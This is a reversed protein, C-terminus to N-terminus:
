NLALPKSAVLFLGLGLAELGVGLAKLCALVLVFIKTKLGLSLKVDSITM